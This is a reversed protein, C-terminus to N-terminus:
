QLNRMRLATIRQTTFIFLNCFFFFYGPGTLIIRSTGQITEYAERLLSPLIAGVECRRTTRYHKVKALSFYASKDISEICTTRLKRNSSRWVLLILVLTRAADEEGQGKCSPQM